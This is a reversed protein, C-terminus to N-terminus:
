SLPLTSPLLVLATAMAVIGERRGTFGLGETTTAKIGIRDPAIALLQAVREQMQTRYPGIKPEECLVTIDANAIRGGREAIRAVAHEVFMSSAAGRWQPDSPPFHQGIDGAGIAGLLADTLAHLAVDADSHGELARHFPIEIGCLWIRTGDGFRHVDFGSGSRPEWGISSPPASLMCDAEKLDELTTLKLNRRHDPVVTLRLGAWEAVAADDTFDDRGAAAAARHASIISQFRFGQPTQARWLDERPLTQVIRREGDVRKLTDTLPIAAIAGDACDLAALVGSITEATVFPRAADHILVRHPATASLAELGALVSRQRTAGGCVPGPIHDCLGVLVADYLPRDDPHIVVQVLDIGPAALFAEITRRLSSKGGIPIYQKPTGGGARKGRGAAVILAATSVMSPKPDNWSRSPTGM